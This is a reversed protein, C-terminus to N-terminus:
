NKDNSQAIVWSYPPDAPQIQELTLDARALLQNWAEPTRDGGGYLTLAQLDALGQLPELPGENLVMELALLRANPHMARRCAKLVQLSREDDFCRLVTSLVYADGGNPVAATANGAVCEIRDAVDEPLRTNEIVSPLELLLGRIEPYRRLLCTLFGGKGGGVDVVVASSSFDYADVAARFGEVTSDMAAGYMAARDPHEALYDHFSTGFALEFGSRGSLVSETLCGFAEYGEQLCSWGLIMTRTGDPDDDRLCQGLPTLSFHGAEDESLVGEGALARMLRHLAAPHAGMERAVSESDRAGAALANGLGLRAAAAIAQSLRYAGALQRLTGPDRAMLQDEDM